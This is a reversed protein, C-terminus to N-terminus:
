EALLQQRADELHKLQAKTVEPFKPQLAEIAGALVGATLLRVIPGSTARDALQLWGSSLFLSIPVLAPFLYRGQPQIFTLNYYAVEAFVLLAAAALAPM